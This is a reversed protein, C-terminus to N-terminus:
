YRDDVEFAATAIHWYLQVDDNMVLRSIFEKISPHSSPSTLQSLYQRVGDELAFFVRFTSERVHWLGGRDILDIWEEDKKGESEGECLVMKMLCDNMDEKLEHSSEKIKKSVQRMVYGAAYGMANAEIVSVDKAMSCATSPVVYKEKLLERFIIDTLHQYLTPTPIVNARELFVRWHSIFTNSSRIIFYQQWIKEKNLLHRGTPFILARELYNLLEKTFHTVSANNEKHICWEKLLKTSTLVGAAVPSCTSFSPDKLITEVGSLLVDAM